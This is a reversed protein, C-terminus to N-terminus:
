LFNTLIKAIIYKSLDIKAHDHLVYRHLNKKKSYSIGHGGLSYQFMGRSM